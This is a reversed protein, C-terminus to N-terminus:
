GALEGHGCLLLWKPNFGSELVGEPPAIFILSGRIDIMSYLCAFTQKIHGPM